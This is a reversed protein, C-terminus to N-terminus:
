KNKTLPGPPGSSIKGLAPRSDSQSSFFIGIHRHDFIREWQRSENCYLLQSDRAALFVNTFEFFIPMFIAM